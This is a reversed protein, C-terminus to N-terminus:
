MGTVDIVLLDGLSDTYGYYIYQSAAYFDATLTIDQRQIGGSIAKGGLTTTFIFYDPAPGGIGGIPEYHIDLAIRSPIVAYDRGSVYTHDTVIGPGAELNQLFGAVRLYEYESDFTVLGAADKVRVGWHPTTLPLPTDFHYVAVSTGVSDNGEVVVRATQTSGSTTVYAISAARATCRVAFMPKDCDTFSVDVYSAFSSQTGPVYSTTATVTKTRLAMNRYTDDIQITGADNLVRIGFAM